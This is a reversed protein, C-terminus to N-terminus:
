TTLEDYGRNLFQVLDFGNGFPDAMHALKGWKAVSLNGELQAGARQARALAADMDAVVFDLHVPTWHRSYNRPQASASSAAGGAPAEILYIPSAAGLLEVITPGLHRGVRLGLANCYFDTAREINEVDVNVMLGVSM